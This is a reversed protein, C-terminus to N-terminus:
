YSKYPNKYTVIKGANLRITVLPQKELPLIALAHLQADMVTQHQSKTHKSSYHEEGYMKM